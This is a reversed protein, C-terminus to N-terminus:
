NKTERQDTFLLLPLSMLKVNITHANDHERINARTRRDKSHEREYNKLRIVLDFHSRKTSCCLHLHLATRSWTSGSTPVDVTGGEVTPYIM